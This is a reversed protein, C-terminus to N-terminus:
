LDGSEVLRQAVADMMAASAYYGNAVGRRLAGVREVGLGAPLAAVLAPARRADADRVPTVPVILEMDNHM